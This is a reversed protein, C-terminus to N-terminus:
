VLLFYGKTLLLPSDMQNLLCDAKDVTKVCLTSWGILAQKRHEDIRGFIGLFRTLRRLSLRPFYSFKDGVHACVLTIFITGTM